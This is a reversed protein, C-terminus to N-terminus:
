SGSTNRKSKIVTRSYWPTVGPYMSLSSTLTSQDVDGFWRHEGEVYRDIVRRKDEM